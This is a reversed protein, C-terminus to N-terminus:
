LGESRLMTAILDDEIVGVKNLLNQAHGRATVIAGEREMQKLLWDVSGRELREMAMRCDRAISLAFYLWSEETEVYSSTVPALTLEDASLDSMPRAAM